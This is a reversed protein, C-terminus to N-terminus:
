GRVPKLGLRAYGFPPDKDLKLTALDARKSVSASEGIGVQGGPFEYRFLAKRAMSDKKDVVMHRNTLIHGNVACAHGSGGRGMNIAFSHPMDPVPVAAAQVAAFVVFAIFWNKM